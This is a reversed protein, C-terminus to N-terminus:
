AAERVRELAPLSVQSGTLILQRKLQRWTLGRDLREREVILYAVLCLAIHHEQAGEGPLSKKDSSRKYGAQCAELSLQSKLVRVVEEVEQRKRYLTRVEKASLSLRNTAYYKRRYRVVFVKIGGSLYGTAQWYPQQLYRGLPRGEFRRNKKLQCVFYWGYDSLRKLLKKSPYWADFLVFEPKCRLRNRAYSLLELALDFKSAGGKHWRRFALPIRGQGDTWVLLVVAVGFVVKRQKSSWVWAAEGLLRAYPKEVVTDDVLLYGGAVTFLARLALNLRIHGSWAGQLLRTLQDHSASDLADAMASCTTINTFYLLAMLYLWLPEPM